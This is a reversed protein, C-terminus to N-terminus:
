RDTVRGREDSPRLATVSLKNGGAGAVADIARWLGTAAPLMRRRSLLRMAPGPAHRYFMAYRRVSAAEFGAAELEAVVSSASMRAVRNGAEERELALRLGVAIATALADAPETVSVFRDAVRAMERLGLLPDELHHLGDHVYVGDFSHDDFPLAEVDAAVSRMPLGERRAREQARLVAGLSLDCVVVEAAGARCLFEAEMGSGGCVTLIRSGPVVAGLGALSREFKEMMLRGYLAAAGHPRSLEWAPDEEEDFFRRQSEKHQREAESATASPDPLLVPVGQEVAYSTDCAGCRGGSPGVTVHGARCTPCLLHEDHALISM